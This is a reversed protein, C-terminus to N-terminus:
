WSAAEAQRVPIADEYGLATLVADRDFLREKGRDVWMPMEGRRCLAYLKQKGYGAIDAVQSATLRVPLGRLETIIRTRVATKNAEIMASVERIIQEVKEAFNQNSMRQQTAKVAHMCTTHDLHFQRGIVPYSLGRAVRVAYIAAQRAHVVQRYRVRERIIKPPLGFIPAAVDMAVSCIPQM